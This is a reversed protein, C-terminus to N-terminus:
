LVTNWNTIRNSATNATSLRVTYNPIIKTLTTNITIGNLIDSNNLEKGIGIKDLWEALSGNESM